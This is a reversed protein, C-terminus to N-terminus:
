TSATSNRSRDLQSRLHLSCEQVSSGHLSSQSKEQLSHETLGAKALYDSAEEVGAETMIRTLEALKRRIAELEYANGTM